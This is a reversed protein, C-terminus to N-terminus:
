IRQVRVWAILRALQEPCFMRNWATRGRKASANAQEPWM